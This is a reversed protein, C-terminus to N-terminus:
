VFIHVLPLGSLYACSYPIYYNHTKDKISININIQKYVNLQLCETYGLLLSLVNKCLYIRAEIQYLVCM